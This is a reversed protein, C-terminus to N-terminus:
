RDPAFATLGVRRQPSCVACLVQAGEGAGAQERFCRRFHDGSRFGIKNFTVFLDGLLRMTPGFAIEQFLDGDLGSGNILLVNYQQTM